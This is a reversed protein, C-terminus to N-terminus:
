NEKPPAAPLEGARRRRLFERFAARSVPVPSYANLRENFEYLEVGYTSGPAPAWAYERGAIEVARARQTQKQYPACPDPERLDVGIDQRFLPLGTPACVRAHEPDDFVADFASRQLILRFRDLLDAHRLSQIWLHEDTPREALRVKPPPVAIFVHPQTFREAAPVGKLSESRRVRHIIQDHMAKNFYPEFIVVDTSQTFSLGVAGVVTVLVLKIRTRPSNAMRVIEKREEYNTEGSLVVYQPPARAGSPQSEEAGGRREAGPIARVTYRRAPAGGEAGGLEATEPVAPPEELAEALEGPKSKKPKKPAGRAANEWGRRECEAVVASIGRERFQTYCVVPGRAAPIVDDLLARAKPSWLVSAGDRTTHYSNGAQRSRQRYTSTQDSKPRQLNPPAAARRGGDEERERERAQLYEEFQPAEMPVRHVRYPRLEPLNTAGHGSHHSVLGVCRNALKDSNRPARLRPERAREADQARREAYQQELAEQVDADVHELQSAPVLQVFFRHFDTYNEPLVPNEAPGVMNLLIALEFPDDIGPTGTFLFVRARPSQKLIRYVATANGSGNTVARAFLHAEDIFVAVGNFTTTNRLFELNATRERMAELRAERSDGLTKRRYSRPQTRELPVGTARDVAAAVQYVSNNASMNAFQLRAWPFRRGSVREYTRASSEFNGYLTRTTFLVVPMGIQSILAAMTIGKGSGMVHTILLGRADSRYERGLAYALVRSQHPRLGRPDLGAARAAPEPDALRRAITYAFSTSNRQM